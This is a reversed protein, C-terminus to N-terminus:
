ETEEWDVLWEELQTKQHFIRSLKVAASIAEVCSDYDYDKPLTKLLIDKALSTESVSLKTFEVQEQTVTTPTPASVEMQTTKLEMPHFMQVVGNAFELCVVNHAEFGCTEDYGIVKGICGKYRLLEKKFKVPLQGPSFEDSRHIYEDVYVDKVLANTGLKFVSETSM